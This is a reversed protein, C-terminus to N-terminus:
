KLRRSRRCLRQIDRAKPEVHASDSEAVRGKDKASVEGRGVQDSMSGGVPRCTAGDAQRPWEKRGSPLRTSRTSGRALLAALAKPVKRKVINDCQAADM